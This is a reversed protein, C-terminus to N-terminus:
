STAANTLEKLEKQLNELENNDIEVGSFKANRLRTIRRKLNAIHYKRQKERYEETEEETKKEYAFIIYQTTEYDIYDYFLIAGTYEKDLRDAMEQLDSPKMEAFHCDSLSEVPVQNWYEEDYNKNLWDMNNMIGIIEITGHISNEM